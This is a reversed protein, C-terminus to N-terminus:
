DRYSCSPPLPWHGSSFSRFIVARSVCSTLRWTSFSVRIPLILSNVSCTPLSVTSGLRSSCSGAPVTESSARLFRKIRIHERFASPIRSRSNQSHQKWDSNNQKISVLKSTPSNSWVTEVFLNKSYYDPGRLLSLISAAVVAVVFGRAVFRSSLVKLTGSFTWLAQSAPPASRVARTFSKWSAPNSLSLHSGFKDYTKFCFPRTPISLVHTPIKNTNFFSEEVARPSIGSTPRFWHLSFLVLWVGISPPTHLLPCSAHHVSVWHTGKNSIM